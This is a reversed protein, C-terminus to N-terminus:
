GAPAPDCVRFRSPTVARGITKNCTSYTNPWCTATPAGSNGSLGVLAGLGIKDIGARGLRDPTALRWIFTRSRVACITCAAYTARHYTEQYVLVGDLGLTKLEAYEEQPLPQVEIM